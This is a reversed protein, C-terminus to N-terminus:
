TRPPPGPGQSTAARQGGRRRSESSSVRLRWYIPRGTQKPLAAAAPAAPPPAAPRRAPSPQGPRGAPPGATLVGAGRDPPQPPRSSSGDAACGPGLSLPFPLSRAGQLHGRAGVWTGAEQASSLLGAALAACGGGRPRAAGASALGREAREETARRGAGARQAGRVAQTHGGRGARGVRGPRAEPSGAAGPHGAPRLGGTRSSGGGRLGCGVARGSALTPPLPRVM